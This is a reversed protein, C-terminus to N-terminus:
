NLDYIIIPMILNFVDQPFDKPIDSLKIEWLNAEVEENLLSNFKKQHEDLKKTLEKYTNNLNNIASLYFKMKEAPVIRTMNGNQDKGVSPNGESDVAYQQIIATNEERYKKFEPDTDDYIGAKEVSKVIKELEFTNYGVAYKFAPEGAVRISNLGNFFEVWRKNSMSIKKM